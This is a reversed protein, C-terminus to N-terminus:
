PPSVINFSLANYEFFTGGPLLIRALAIMRRDLDFKRVAERLILQLSPNMFREIQHPIRHFRFQVSINKTITLPIGSCFLTFGRRLAVPCRPTM